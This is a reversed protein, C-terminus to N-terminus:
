QTWTAAAQPLMMAYITLSEVEYGDKREFRLLGEMESAANVYNRHRTINSPLVDLPPFQCGGSDHDKVPGDTGM